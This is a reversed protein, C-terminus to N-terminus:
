KATLGRGRTSPHCQMTAADSCYLCQDYASYWPGAILARVMLSDSEPGCNTPLAGGEVTLSPDMSSLLPLLDALDVVALGHPLSGLGQGM